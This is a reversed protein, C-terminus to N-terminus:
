SILRAFLTAEPVFAKLLKSKDVIWLSCAIAQLLLYVFVLM